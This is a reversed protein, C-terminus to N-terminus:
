LTEVAFDADHGKEAVVGKAVPKSLLCLVPGGGWSDIGSSHCSGLHEIMASLGYRNADM